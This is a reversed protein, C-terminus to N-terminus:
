VTKVVYAGGGGGGAGSGNVTSGGNIGAGGSGGGGWCEVTASFVNPPCTWSTTGPTTFSDSTQAVAQGRGFALMALAAFAAALVGAINQSSSDTDPAQMNTPEM